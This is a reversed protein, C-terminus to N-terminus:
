AVAYGVPGRASAAEGGDGPRPGVRRIPRHRRRNGTIKRLAISASASSDTSTPFAPSIRQVTRELQMVERRVRDEAHERADALLMRRYSRGLRLRGRVLAAVGHGLGRRARWDVVLLLRRAPRRALYLLAVLVAVWLPGSIWPSDFPVHLLRQM